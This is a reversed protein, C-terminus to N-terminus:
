TEAMTVMHIFEATDVTTTAPIIFPLDGGDAMGDVGVMDLMSGAGAIDLDLVGDMGPTIDLISDGHGHDQIIILDGGHIM